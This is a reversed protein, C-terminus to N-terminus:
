ASKRSGPSLRDSWDGSRPSGWLPNARSMRRILQIVKMEIPPRGPRARSKWRRHYRFGQRRWHIVTEPKVIFLVNKCNNLLRRMLIWFMRDGDNIRPRNVTRRLVIIQQRLASNEMALWARGSALARILALVHAITAM